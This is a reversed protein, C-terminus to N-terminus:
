DAAETARRSRESAPPGAECLRTPPFRATVTTGTGPSSEIEMTGDHLEVLRKTLPLGLGVGDYRRNLGSDIQGFPALAVAMKDAPIGIGNDEIRFLLGGGTDRRISLLVRGGENTFKVANSLLNILIQRLKVADGRLIPLDDDLSTRCDIGSDRAMEAIIGISLAVVEAVDVPTEVLVLRNAEVKAFELIDNIM